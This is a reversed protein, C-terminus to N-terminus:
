RDGPRATPAPPGETTTRVGIRVSTRWHEGAALVPAGAGPGDREPGFLPANAPEVGLVWAGAAPYVWTCLRPLTDATWEVVVEADRGTGTLVARARGGSPRVRPHEAVVADLGLAPAPLTVPDRGPPLPERLVPEGADVLLRAGPRLLPAGLNVHYLLPVAVPEHGTNRVVDHVDVWPRGTGAVIEREVVV